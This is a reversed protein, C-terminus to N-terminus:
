AVQKWNKVYHYKASYVTKNPLRYGMSVDYCSPSVVIRTAIGDPLPFARSGRSFDHAQPGQATVDNRPVTDVTQGAVLRADKRASLPITTNILERGPRVIQPTL